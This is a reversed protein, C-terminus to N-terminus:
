VVQDLETRMLATRQLLSRLVVLVLLLTIGILVSGVIVIGLAPPGPIFALTSATLITAVIVTVVLLDVMLAAAQGFIRDRRVFGVLVATAILIIEGCLGVALALALLPTRLSTFEPNLEAIPASIPFLAVQGALILAALLGSALWTTVVAALSPSTSIRKM